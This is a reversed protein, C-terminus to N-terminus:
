MNGVTLGSVRLLTAFIDKKVRVSAIVSLGRIPLPIDVLVDTSIAPRKNSPNENNSDASM